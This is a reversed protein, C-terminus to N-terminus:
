DDRCRMGQVVERAGKAREEWARIKAEGDVKIARHKAVYMARIYEVVTMEAQDDTLSLNLTSDADAAKTPTAQDLSEIVSRAEKAGTDIMRMREPDPQDVQMPTVKKPEEDEDETPDTDSPIVVVPEDKKPRATTAPTKAKSVPIARARSTTSAPAPKSRITKEAEVKSKARSVVPVVDDQETETVPESSPASEAMKKSRKTTAPAPRMSAVAAPKKVVTARTARRTPPAKAEIGPEPQVAPAAPEDIPDSVAESAVATAAKRGRATTAPKSVKTARGKSKTPSTPPKITEDAEEEVPTAIPDDTDSAAALVPKRTTRRTTSAAATKM